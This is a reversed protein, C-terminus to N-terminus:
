LSLYSSLNLFWVQCKRVIKHLIAFCRKLFKLKCPITMSWGLFLTQSSKNYLLLLLHLLLHLPRLIALFPNRGSHTATSLFTFEMVRFVGLCDKLIWQLITGDFFPLRTNKVQSGARKPKPHKSGSLTQEQVELGGKCKRSAQASWPCRQGKWRSRCKRTVGVTPSQLSSPHFLQTMWLGSLTSDSITKQKLSAATRSWTSTRSWVLDGLVCVGAVCM